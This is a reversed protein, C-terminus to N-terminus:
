TLTNGFKRKTGKDQIETAGQQERHSKDEKLKGSSVSHSPVSASARAGSAISAKLGAEASKIPQSIKPKLAPILLEPRSQPQSGSSGESIHIPSTSGNEVKVNKIGNHLSNKSSLVNDRCRLRALKSQSDNLRSEAQELQM